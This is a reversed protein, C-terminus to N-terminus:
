SNLAQEIEETSVGQKEAQYKDRRKAQVAYSVAVYTIFGFLALLVGFYFISDPSNM